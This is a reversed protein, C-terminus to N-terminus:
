EARTYEIRMNLFEEGGARTVYMEHTHADPGDLLVVDRVLADEGTTFDHMRKTMELRSGDASAHGTSIPALATSMSDCWTGVYVGQAKDYGFLSLGEFRQGMWDGVYDGRLFRGGFMWFSHMTGTSTMPETGPEAWMTLAARFTGLMPELVRHEAGPTGLEVVAAMMEEPSMPPPDPTGARPSECSATLTVFLLSPLVIRRQMSLSRNSLRQGSM